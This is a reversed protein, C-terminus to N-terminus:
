SPIQSKNLLRTIEENLEGVPVTLQKICQDFNHDVIEKDYIYREPKESAMYFKFPSYCPSSTEVIPISGCLMAEFFRYTWPCGVDGSPCITFRSQAMLQYYEDDWSKGPFIRGRLSATILIKELSTLISSTLEYLPYDIKVRGTIAMYGKVKDSLFSNMWTKRAKTMKGIFSYKYKRDQPWLNRCYEVMAHPLILPRSINGIRTEPTITSHAILIDSVLHTEDGPQILEYNVPFFDKLREFRVNQDPRICFTANSEMIAHAMRIEQLYEYTLNFSIRKM